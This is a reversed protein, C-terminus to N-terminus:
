RPWFRHRAKKNKAILSTQYPNQQSPPTHRPIRDSTAPISLVDAVFTKAFFRKLMSTFGSVARPANAIIKHVITNLFTKGGRARWKCEVPKRTTPQREGRTEEYVVEPELRSGADEQAGEKEM